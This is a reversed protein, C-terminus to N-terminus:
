LESFPVRPPATWWSLAALRIISSKPTDDHWLLEDPSSQLKLLRRRGPPVADDMVHGERNNIVPSNTRPWRFACLVTARRHRESCRILVRPSLPEVSLVGPFHRGPIAGAAAGARLTLALLPLHAPDSSRRPGSLLLILM